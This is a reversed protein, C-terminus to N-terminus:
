ISNRNIIRKIINKFSQWILIKVWDIKSDTWNHPHINLMIQDPMEGLNIKNILEESSNVEIDFNSEVYDRISVKKNNWSRGADTIYFVKSWDIDIYPEGIIGETRYDFKKWLDRNDYKSLPSGHM